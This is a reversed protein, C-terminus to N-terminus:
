WESVAIMVGGAPSLFAPALVSGAALFSVAFVAFAGTALVSPAFVADGTSASTLFSTFASVASLFAASSFFAASAPVAFEDAGPEVIVDFSGASVSARSATSFVPQSAHFSWSAFFSSSIVVLSTINTSGAPAKAVSLAAVSLAQAPSGGHLTELTLTVSAWLEDTVASTPM